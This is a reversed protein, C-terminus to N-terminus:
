SASLNTLSSVSRSRCSTPKVPLTTLPSKLSRWLVAFCTVGPLSSLLISPGMMSNTCATSPLWPGPFVKVRDDDILLSVFRQLRMHEAEGATNIAISTGTEDGTDGVYTGYLLSDGTASLKIVFADDGGANEEQYATDSVPFTASDSATTGVIFVNGALDVKIGNAQDDNAGGIFSSSPGM